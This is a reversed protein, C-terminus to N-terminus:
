APTRLLLAVHSPNTVQPNLGPPSPLFHHPGMAEDQAPTINAALLTRFPLHRQLPFLKVYPGVVFLGQM